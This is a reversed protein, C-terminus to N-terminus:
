RAGKSNLYDFYLPLGGTHIFLVNEDSRADELYKLMGAFAKGTYTPDLEIGYHEMMDDIVVKINEDFIGYGGCLYDDLFIVDGNADIGAYRCVERVGRDKGRSISIGIIEETGHSKIKGSILGGQTMGTGSALFIKDFRIDNENEWAAIEDYAKEYARRIVGENGKGYRDGYVYYPKHGQSKLSVMVSQVTEAVNDKSCRVRKVGLRSIIRSNFSEPNGEYEREDEDDTSFVDDTFGIEDPPTFNDDATIVVCPINLSGAFSAIVRNLNSKTSGYSIVCDAGKEELDCFLEYGIRVKNGGFSFGTLDDRKMYIDQGTGLKGLYQIPTPVTLFQQMDM